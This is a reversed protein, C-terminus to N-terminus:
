SQFSTWQMILADDGNQYFSPVHDIITFHHTKYFEIANKNSATVELYISKILRKESEQLFQTLLLTGIGKKRHKEHIGLMLIRGKRQSTRIGVIFGIIQKNKEAVWFGWPFSEYFYLFLQPTYKETLVHSALDIIQFLDDSQVQRITFV